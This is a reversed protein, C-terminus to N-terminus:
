IYKLIIKDERRREEFNDGENLDGGFGCMYNEGGRVHWM